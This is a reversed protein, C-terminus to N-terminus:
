IEESEVEKISEEKISEEKNKKDTKPEGKIKGVLSGIFFGLIFIGHWIISLLFMAGGIGLLWGIINFLWITLLNLAIIPIFLTVIYLVLAGIMFIGEYQLLRMLEYDYEMMAQKQAEYYNNAYGMCLVFAGIFSFLIISLINPNDQLARLTILATLSVLLYSGFAKVFYIGKDFKLLAFLLASPILFVWKWVFGFVINIIGLYFIFQVIDM